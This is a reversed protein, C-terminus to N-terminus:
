TARCSVAWYPLSEGASDVMAVASAAGAAFLVRAITMVNNKIQPKIVQRFSMRM